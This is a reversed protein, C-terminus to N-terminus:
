KRPKTIVSPLVRQVPSWGTASFQVQYCVVSVLSLCGHGLPIRVRLGLLGAAASGCGLGRAVSPDAKKANTSLICKPVRPSVGVTRYSSINTRWSHVFTRISRVLSPNPALIELTRFPPKYSFRIDSFRPGGTYKSRATGLKNIDDHSRMCLEFTKNLFSCFGCNRLMGPMGQKICSVTLHITWPGTSTFKNRHICIAEETKIAIPKWQWLELTIFVLTIFHHLHGCHIM